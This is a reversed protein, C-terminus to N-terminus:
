WLQNKWDRWKKKTIYKKMRTALRGV